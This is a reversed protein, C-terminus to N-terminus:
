GVTVDYRVARYVRPREGRTEAVTVSARGRGVARFVLVVNPGVDGETQERLVSSKVARAVRWDYGHRKPLAIAVLSGRTTTVRTVKPKPLPGVPPATAGATPAAALAAACVALATLARVQYIGRFRAFLQVVAFM